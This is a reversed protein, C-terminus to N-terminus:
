WIRQESLLAQITQSIDRPESTQMHKLRLLDNFNVGEGQPKKAKIESVTNWFEKTWPELQLYTSWDAGRAPALMKELLGYYWWQVGNRYPMDWAQAQRVKDFEVDLIHPYDTLKLNLIYMLFIVFEDLNKDDVYVMKAIGFLKEYMSGSFIESIVEHPDLGHAKIAAILLFADQVVINKVHENVYIFDEKPMNKSEIEGEKIYSVFDTEANPGCILRCNKIECDNLPCIINKMVSWVFERQYLTQSYFDKYSHTKSRSKDGNITRHITTAIYVLYDNKEESSDFLHDGLLDFDKNIYSEIIKYLTHGISYTKGIHMVGGSLLGAPEKFVLPVDKFPKSKIKCARKLLIEALKFDSINSM